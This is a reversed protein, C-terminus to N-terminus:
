YELLPLKKWHYFAQRKDLDIMEKIKQAMGRKAGLVDFMGQKGGM